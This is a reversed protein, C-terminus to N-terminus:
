QVAEIEVDDLWVRGTPTTLRIRLAAQLEKKTIEIRATFQKYEDGVTFAPLDRGALSALVDANKGIAACAWFRVEYTAPVLRLTTSAGAEAGAELGRLSLASDRTRPNSRDLRVSYKAGRKGWQGKSWRAAFRTDENREEFGGNAVLNGEPPREGPPKAPERGADAGGAQGGAVPAPAPPAPKWPEAMAIKAASHGLVDSTLPRMGFGPGSWWVRATAEGSRNFYAMRVDNKGKKLVVTQDNWEEVPRWKGAVQQRGVSLMLGGNQHALFTYRGTQPAVLVGEWAGSFRDVPVKEGPSKDKWGIWAAPSWYRLIPRGGPRKGAFIGGKMGPALGKRDVLAPKRPEHFVACTSTDGPNNKNGHGPMSYRVRLKAKGGRHRYEVVFERFGKKAKKKLKNEEWKTNNWKDVLLTGDLKARVGGEADASFGMEGDKDVFLKGSFRASWRNRPLGPVPPIAGLDFSPRLVPSEAVEREFNDGAFYEAWMGQVLKAHPGIKGVEPVIHFLYEPPITVKGGWPPLWRLKAAGWGPRGSYTVTLEHLGGEYEEELTVKTSGKKILTSGDLTV